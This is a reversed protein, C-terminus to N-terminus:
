AGTEHHRRGEGVRRGQLLPHGYALRRHQEVVGGGTEGGPRVHDRLGCCDRPGRRERRWSRAVRNDGRGARAGGGGTGETAGLAAAMRMVFDPTAAATDAAILANGIAVAGRWDKVALHVRWQLDLLEADDPSQVVAADIIPRAEEFRRATAYARALSVQVRRNTSDIGLLATLMRIQDDGMGKADYADAAFALARRNGPHIALIEESIRIMSDPGLKQQDYIDAVCVRASEVQRRAAQFEQSVLKAVDNIKAAEVAPLPQVMDDRAGLSWDANVRYGGSPTRIVTGNIFEDARFQTALQRTESSTLAQDVPFGSQRLYNTITSEPVVWLARIDFDSAIRERVARSVQFGLTGADSQLTPVIFRPGPSQGGRPASQQAGIFPATGGMLVALLLAVQVRSSPSSAYM